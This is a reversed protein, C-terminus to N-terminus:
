SQKNDDDSWWKKDPEKPKPQWFTTVVLLLAVVGGVLWMANQEYWPPDAVSPPPSILQASPLKVTWGQPVSIEKREGRLEYSITLTADPSPDQQLGFTKAAACITARDGHALEQVAATVDKQGYKAQTIRIITPAPMRALVGNIQVELSSLQQDLAAVLKTQTNVATTGSLIKLEYTNRNAQAISDVRIKGRSSMAKQQQAALDAVAKKAQAVEQELQSLREKASALQGSLHYRTVQLSQLWATHANASLRRPEVASAPDAASAAAKDFCQIAEAYKNKALWARGHEVWQQVVTSAAAASVQGTSEAANLFSHGAQPIALSICLLILASTSHNM